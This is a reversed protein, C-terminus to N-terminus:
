RNSKRSTKNYEQIRKNAELINHGENLSEKKISDEKEKDNIKRKQRDMKNKLSNHIEESKSVSRENENVKLTTFLTKSKSRKYLKTEQTEQIQTVIM